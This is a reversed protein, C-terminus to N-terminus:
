WGVWGTVTLFAKFEPQRVGSHTVITGACWVTGSIAGYDGMGTNARKKPHRYPPPQTVSLGQGGAATALLASTRMGKCNTHGSTQPLCLCSHVLPGHAGMPPGQLSPRRPVTPGPDTPDPRPGRSTPGPCHRSPLLPMALKLPPFLSESLFSPSPASGPGPGTQEM